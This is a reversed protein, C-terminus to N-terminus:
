LDIGVYQNVHCGTPGEVPYQFRSVSDGIGSATPTRVGHEPFGFVIIGEQYERPIRVAYNDRSVMQEFGSSATLRDGVLTGEFFVEEMGDPRILFAEVKHVTTGLPLGSERIIAGCRTSFAKDYELFNRARPDDPHLKGDQPLMFEQSCTHKEAENAYMSVNLWRYANDIPCSSVQAPFPETRQRQTRAIVKQPQGRTVAINPKIPTNSCDGALIFENTNADFWGTEGAGGSRRVGNVLDVEGNPLAAAMHLVGEPMPRGDLSRLYVPLNQVTDVTGGALQIASLFGNPTTNAGTIGGNGSPDENLSQQIREALVTPNPIEGRIALPLLTQALVSTSFLVTVVLAVLARTFKAM